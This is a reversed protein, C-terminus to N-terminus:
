FFIYFWLLQTPNYVPRQHISGNPPLGHDCLLWLDGADNVRDHESYYIISKGYLKRKELHNKYTSNIFCFKMLSDWYEPAHNHADSSKIQLCQLNKKDSKQMKLIHCSSVPMTFCHSSLDVLYPIWKESKKGKVEDEMLFVCLGTPTWMKLEHKKIRCFKM